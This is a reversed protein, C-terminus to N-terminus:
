ATHSTSPPPPSPRSTSPQPHQGHMARDLYCASSSLPPGRPGPSPMSTQSRHIAPTTARTKSEDDAFRTHQVIEQITSLRWKDYDYIRRSGRAAAVLFGQQRAGLITLDLKLVVIALAICCSADCACLCNADCSGYGSNYSYFSM